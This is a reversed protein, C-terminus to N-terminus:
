VLTLDPYLRSSELDANKTMQRYDNSTTNHFIRRKSSFIGSKAALHETLAVLVFGTYFIPILSSLVMQTLISM